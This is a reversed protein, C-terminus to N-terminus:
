ILEKWRAIESKVNDFSPAGKNTRAKLATTLDFVDTADNGYSDSIASLVLSSTHM